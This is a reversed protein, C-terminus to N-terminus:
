NLQIEVDQALKVQNRKLILDTFYEIKEVEFSSNDNIELSKDNMDKDDQRIHKM